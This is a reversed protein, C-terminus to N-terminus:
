FIGAERGSHEGFQSAKSIQGFLHSWLWTLLKDYNEGDDNVIDGDNSDARLKVQWGQAETPRASASQPLSAQVWLPPTIIKACAIQLNKKKKKGESCGCCTSTGQGTFSGTGCSYGSGCVVGSGSGATGGTFEPRPIWSAPGRLDKRPSSDLLLIANHIISGHSHSLDLFLYIKKRM